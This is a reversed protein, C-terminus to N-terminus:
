TLMKKGTQEWHRAGRQSYSITSEEARQLRCGMECPDGPPSTVPPRYCRSGRRKPVLHMLNVTREAQESQFNRKGDPTVTLGPVSVDFTKTLTKSFILANLFVFEFNLFIIGSILCQFGRRCQFSPSRCWEKLDALWYINSPPLSCFKFHM